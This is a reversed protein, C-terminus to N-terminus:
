ILLWCNTRISGFFIFKYCVRLEIPIQAKNEKNEVAYTGPGPIEEKKDDFRKSKNALTSGGKISFM